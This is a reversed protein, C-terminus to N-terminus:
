HKKRERYLLLLFLLLLFWLYSPLAKLKELFVGAGGSLGFSSGGSSGAGSSGSSGLSSGSSGSPASSGSGSPTSRWSISETIPANMTVTFPNALGSYSGSGSGAIIAIDWGSEETVTIPVMEGADHWEPSIVSSSGHGNLEVTLQYEIEWNIIIEDDGFPMIYTFTTDTEMGRAMSDSEVYVYRKGTDTVPTPIVVSHESGALWDQGIPFADYGYNVGDLTLVTGAADAGMGSLRWIAHAVIAGHVPVSVLCVSFLLLCALLVSSRQM